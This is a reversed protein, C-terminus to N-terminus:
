STQQRLRVLNDSMADQLLGKYQLVDTAGLEIAADSAVAVSFSVHNALDAAVTQLYARKRQGSGNLLLRLSNRAQAAQAEQLAPIALAPAQMGWHMLALDNLCAITGPHETGLLKRRGSCARQQLQLGQPRKGTVYYLKGIEAQTAVLTAHEAPLVRRQTDLSRQLLEHAQEYEGSDRYLAGLDALAGL